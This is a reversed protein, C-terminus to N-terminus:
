FTDFFWTNNVPQLTDGIELIIKLGNKTKVINFTEEPILQSGLMGIPYQNKRWQKLFAKADKETRKLEINTKRKDLQSLHQREQLTSNAVIVEFEEWVCLLELDQRFRYVSRKYFYLSKFWSRVLRFLRLHGKQVESQWKSFHHGAWM